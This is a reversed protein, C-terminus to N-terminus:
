VLSKGHIEVQADYEWLLAMAEEPSMRGDLVKPMADVIDRHSQSPYYASMCRLDGHKKYLAATVNANIKNAAHMLADHARAVAEDVQIPQGDKGIFEGQM